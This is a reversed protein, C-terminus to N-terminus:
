TRMDHIKGIRIRHNIIGEEGTKPNRGLIEKFRQFQADDSHFIIEPNPQGKEFKLASQDRAGDEELIWLNRNLLVLLELLNRRDHYRQIRQLESLPMKKVMRDSLGPLIERVVPHNLFVDKQALERDYYKLKFREELIKDARLGYTKKAEEDFVESSSLALNFVPVGLPQSSIGKKLPDLYSQVSDVVFESPSRFGLKNWDKKSRSLAESLLIAIERAPLIKDIPSEFEDVEKLDTLMRRLYEAVADQAGGKWIVRPDYRDQNKGRIEFDHIVPDLMVALGWLMVDDLKVPRQSGPYGPHPSALEEKHGKRWALFSPIFRRVNEVHLENDLPKLRYREMHFGAWRLNPVQFAGNMWDRILKEEFNGQQLLIKRKEGRIYNESSYGHQPWYIIKQYLDFMDWGRKKWYATLEEGIQIFEAPTLNDPQRANEDMWSPLNNEHSSWLLYRLARSWTTSFDWASEPDSYKDFEEHIFEVWKAVTTEGSRVEARASSLKKSALELAQQAMSREMGGKLYKGEFERALGTELLTQAHSAAEKFRGLDLEILVRELALFPNRPDAELAEEALKLAPEFEKQARLAKIQGALAESILSLHRKKHRLEEELKQYVELAAEYNEEGEHIWKGLKIRSEYWYEGAMSKKAKKNAEYWDRYIMREVKLNLQSHAQLVAEEILRGAEKEIQSQEHAQALRLTGEGLEVAEDLIRKVPDPKQEMGSRVKEANHGFQDLQETGSQRFAALVENEMARRARVRLAEAEEEFSQLFAEKRGAKEELLGSVYWVLQEAENRLIQVVRATGKEAEEKAQVSSAEIGELFKLIEKAQQRAQELDDAYERLKTKLTEAASEFVAKLGALEVEELPPKVNYAGAQTQSEFQQRFAQVRRNVPVLDYPNQQANSKLETEVRSAETELRKRFTEILNNVQEARREEQAKLFGELQMRADSIFSQAAAQERFLKEADSSLKKEQVVRDIFQPLQTDFTELLGRIEPVSHSREARNVWARSKPGFLQYFRLLALEVKKELTMAPEPPKPSVLPPTPLSPTEKKPEATKEKAKM